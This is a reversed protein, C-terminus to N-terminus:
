SNEKSGAAEVTVLHPVRAIMGRIEPRDPLTNSKGIRGLGIVGFTAGRLRKATVNREHTWNGGLDARLAADMTATGRAFCLMMAIASDAVETTGYDPVNAVWVGRATAADVDVTDVGVGYRVVLRVEPLADLVEATVPAYQNVLVRAGRCRQM